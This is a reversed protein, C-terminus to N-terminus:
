ARGTGDATAARAAAPGRGARRGEGRRFFDRVSESGPEAALERPDGAAIAGRRDRDLLIVRDTVALTSDLDHTVIVMSTGLTDRIDRVLQDLDAALVPDLGSSPEDFFLLEPDLAMARALGARKRMGGSLESPYLSGAGALGVLRLKMAAIQRVADAPLATHETLPLAVNEAVTMAGFLAGSQFLTGFRRRLAQRENADAQAVDVGLVRVHGSAPTQLGILHRLITSKGSGSGGLIGFIEGRQVAFSVGELVILNGYVATLNHVDVVPAPAAPGSDPPRADTQRESRSCM